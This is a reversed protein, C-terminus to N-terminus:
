KRIESFFGEARAYSKPTGIDLLESECLYGFLGNGLSPFFERELSFPKGAPISKLLSTKILYVGANIWGAGKAKEKEEFASVSKDKEVKVMGYRSTDPVKTLLLAVKIENKLYWKLYASLDVDIYSDGNMALVTETEIMPLAYRLAGGTGLPEPEQSYRVTLDKYRNGFTVRIMEGKYCTCLVVDRFGANVLQDLLFSLFPRGNVPALVKPRDSIVSSLRTGLGGALILATINDVHNM